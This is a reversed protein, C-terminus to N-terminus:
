VYFNPNKMLNFQMINCKFTLNELISAGQSWNCFIMSSLFHTDNSAKTSPTSTLSKDSKAMKKAVIFFPLTWKFAGCEELIGIDVM